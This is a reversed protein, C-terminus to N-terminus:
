LDPTLSFNEYLTLDLLVPRGADAATLRVELNADFLLAQHKQVTDPKLAARLTFRRPGREPAPLGLHLCAAKLMISAVKCEIAVSRARPDFYFSADEADVMPNGDQPTGVFVPLKGQYGLKDPATVAGGPAAPKPPAPAPKKAAPAPAAPKAAPAAPKAPPAAPKSGPAPKRAPEPTPAQGAGPMLFAASQRDAVPHGANSGGTPARTASPTGSNRPRPPPPALAPSSVETTTHGKMPTPTFAYERGRAFINREKTEVKDDGRRPAPAAPKQGPAAPKAGPSAAGPTASPTGGKPQQPTQSM